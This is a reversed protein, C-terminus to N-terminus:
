ESAADQEERRAGALIGPLSYNTEHCAYELQPQDTQKFVMEGRHTGVYLDPDTISFEYFITDDAVRTFREEVVTDEEIILARQRIMMDPHHNVTRVVLADGDWRAVSDGLWPDLRMSRHEGGIRILRPQHVMEVVIALTDATQAVEYINNYLVNMMPPGGTGGFGAICREAVPRTEPNDFNRRQAFRARLRRQAEETLRAKGDEPEILWSTRIEGDIIALNSGTDIWFRNYGGVGDADGVPLPPADPDTEVEDKRYENTLSWVLDWAERPTVALSEAGEVRELTTLSVNTWTGEFSPKGDPTRPPEYAPDWPTTDFFEESFALPPRDLDLTQQALGMGPVLVLATAALLTQPLRTM